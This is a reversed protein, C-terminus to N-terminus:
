IIRGFYLEGYYILKQGYTTHTEAVHGFNSGSIELSFDQIKSNFSWSDHMLIGFNNREESWNLFSFHSQKPLGFDDSTVFNQANFKVFNFRTFLSASMECIESKEM